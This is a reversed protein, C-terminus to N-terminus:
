QIKKLKSTTSLSRSSIKSNKSNRSMVNQTPIQNQNILRYDPYMHNISSNNNSHNQPHISSSVYQHQINSHSYPNQNQTPLYLNQQNSLNSNQNSNNHMSSEFLGKNVNM